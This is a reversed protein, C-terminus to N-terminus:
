PPLARGRLVRLWVADGARLRPSAPGAVRLVVDSDAIGVQYDVADGLYSARLVAGRLADLSPRAPDGPTVPRLEIQHPRISLITPAGPSLAAGEIRIRLPGRTFTAADEARGEVLNTKGIFEAVFRTSPAEYLEEPRGIQAVRGRELV